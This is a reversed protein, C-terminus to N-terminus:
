TSTSRYRARMPGGFPGLSTLTTSSSGSVAVSITQFHIQRYVDRHTHDPEPPLATAEIRRDAGEHLHVAEIVGLAALHACALLGCVACAADRQCTVGRHYEVPSGIQCRIHNGPGKM